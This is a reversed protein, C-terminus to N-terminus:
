SDDFSLWSKSAVTEYHLVNSLDAPSNSSPIIGKSLRYYHALETATLATKGYARLLNVAIHSTTGDIQLSSVVLYCERCSLQWM